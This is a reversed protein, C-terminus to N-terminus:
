RNFIIFWAELEPIEQIGRNLQKTHAGTHTHEKYVYVCVVYIHRLKGKKSM